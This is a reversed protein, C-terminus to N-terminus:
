EGLMEHIHNVAKDGFKSQIMSLYESRTFYEKFANDRFVKVWEPVNLNGYQNYSDWDKNRGDYLESGPYSMACYFNVYECNIKEALELTERATSITDSPLGFMFNGMINIGADRTMNITDWLNRYSKNSAKLVMGSASEFGYCLWNVGANKMTNLMRATVLGVKAYAWINLNFDKIGSCIANVHKPDLAFLEDCFKLNKLNYNNVLYEVEDIVDEPNRFCVKRDEYITHINCYSCNFPCGYSTYLAAYNDRSDIDHLCHWNHARYKTMDMLEWKARKRSALEAPDPFDFTAEGTAMPHLGTMYVDGGEKTFKDRLLQAHTMKPTSSVSPNSGMVVIVINKGNVNASQGIEYDVIEDRDSALLGCWIPPELAKFKHPNPSKPNVLIM